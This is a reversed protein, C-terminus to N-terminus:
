TVIMNGGKLSVLDVLNPQLFMYVNVCEYVSLCVSLNSSLSVETQYAIILVDSISVSSKM